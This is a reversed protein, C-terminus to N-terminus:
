TKGRAKIANKIAFAIEMCCADSDKSDIEVLAARVCLAICADREAAARADGYKRMKEVTVFDAIVNQCWVQYEHDELDPRPLPPMTM